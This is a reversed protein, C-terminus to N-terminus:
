KHKHRCRKVFEWCQPVIRTKKRVEQCLFFLKPKTKSKVIGNKWPTQKGINSFSMLFWFRATKIAVPPTLIPHRSSRPGRLKCFLSIHTFRYAPYICMDIFIAILLMQKISLKM